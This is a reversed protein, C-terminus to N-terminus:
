EAVWDDECEISSQDYLSDDYTDELDGNSSDVKTPTAEDGGRQIFCTTAARNTYEQSKAPNSKLSNPFPSLLCAVPQVESNEPKAYDENTNEFSTPFPSTATTPQKTHNIPNVTIKCPLAYGQAAAFRGSQVLHNVSLQNRQRRRKNDTQFVRSSKRGQLRKNQRLRKRKVM